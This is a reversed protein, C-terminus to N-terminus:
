RGSDTNAALCPLALLTPGCEGSTAASNWRCWALLVSRSAPECSRQAFEGLLEVSVVSVSTTRPPPRPRSGASRKLIAAWGAPRQVRAAPQRRRGDPRGRPASESIEALNRRSISVASSTAAPKTSRPQHVSTCSHNETASHPTPQRITRSAPQPAWGGSALRLQARTDCFKAGHLDVHAAGRNRSRANCLQAPPRTQLMHLPGESRVAPDAAATAPATAAKRRRPAASWFPHRLVAPMARGLM